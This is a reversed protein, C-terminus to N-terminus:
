RAAASGAVAAVVAEFVRVFADCMRAPEGAPLCEISVRQGDSVVTGHLVALAGRRPQVLEVFAAELAPMWVARAPAPDDAHLGFLGDVVDEGGRGSLKGRPRVSFAPTGPPAAITGRYWMTRGRHDFVLDVPAGGVTATIRWVDGRWFGGEHALTGGMRSAAAEFARGSAARTRRTQWVVLWIFLAVGVLGALPQWAVYLRDGRALPVDVRRGRGRAPHSGGGHSRRRVLRLHFHPGTMPSAQEVM